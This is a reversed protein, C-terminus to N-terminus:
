RCPFRDAMFRLVGNTAPMGARDPSARVWHSFETMTQRRTPPNAPFCFPKHNKTHQLELDVVGQAFGDCFNMRADSGPARPDPACLAALDGATRAHLPIPRAARASPVALVAAVVGATLLSLTLRPKM